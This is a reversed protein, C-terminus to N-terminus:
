WLCLLWNNIKYNLPMQSIYVILRSIRNVAAEPLDYENSCCWPPRKGVTIVRAHHGATIREHCGFLLLLTRYLHTFRPCTILYWTRMESFSTRHCYTTPYILSLNIKLKNCFTCYWGRLKSQENVKYWQEKWSSRDTTPRDTMPKWCSHLHSLHSTALIAVHLALDTLM